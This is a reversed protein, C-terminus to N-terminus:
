FKNKIEQKFKVQKLLSPFKKIFYAKNDNRTM